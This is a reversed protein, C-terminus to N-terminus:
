RDDTKLRVTMGDTVFSLPTKVILDGDSLGRDVIVSEKYSRLINVPTIEIHDDRVVYVVDDPYVVHRPLVFARNIERGKIKVAVFMGPRLRFTSQNTGAALNENVEIVVPLTRTKEELQAKIRAV